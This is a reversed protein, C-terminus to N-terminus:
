FTVKVQFGDVMKQGVNQVKLAMKSLLSGLLGVNSPSFELKQTKRLFESNLGVTSILFSDRIYTSLISPQKGIDPWYQDLQWLWFPKLFKGTPSKLKPTWLKVWQVRTGYIQFLFETAWLNSVQKVCLERLVLSSNSWM